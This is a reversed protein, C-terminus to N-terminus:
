WPRGLITPESCDSKKCPLLSRESHADRLVPYFLRMAKESGAESTVCYWKQCIRNASSIMFRGLDLPLSWLDMDQYSYWFVKCFHNLVLVAVVRFGLPFLYYEPFRLNGTVVWSSTSLKFLDFAVSSISFTILSWGNILHVQYNWMLEIYSRLLLLAM